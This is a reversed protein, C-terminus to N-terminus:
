EKLKLMVMERGRFIRSRVTGLPCHMKRAIDAYSLDEVERLLLTERIESPMDDLMHSFIDEAEKCLFLYEPSNFEVLASNELVDKDEPLKEHNKGHHQHYSLYNKATNVAVRYLWSYFTSDEHFSKM